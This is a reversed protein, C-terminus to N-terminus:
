CGDPAQHAAVFRDPESLSGWVACPDYPDIPRGGVAVAPHHVWADVAGRWSAVMERALWGYYGGYNSSRTGVAGDVTIGAAKCLVVSRARHFDNTVVVTHRVGFVRKARACSDWTRRGGYDVAIKDAPVGQAMAATRMASPESYGDVSNDGSMLLMDVVGRDLLQVGARIRDRLVASPTGNGNLGAGLVLAIRHQGGTVKPLAGTAQADPTGASAALLIARGGFVAVVGLVAVILLRRVVRGVRVLGPPAGRRNPTARPREGVYLQGTRRGRRVKSAETAAATASTAPGSGLAETAAVAFFGL